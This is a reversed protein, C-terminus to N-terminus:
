RCTKEIEEPSRIIATHIVRARVSLETGPFPFVLRPIRFGPELDCTDNMLLCCGAPSLNIVPIDRVIKGKSVSLDITITVKLAAINLRYFNRRDGRWLNPEEDPQAADNPAPTGPDDPH